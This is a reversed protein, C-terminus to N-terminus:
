RCKITPATDLKTPEKAGYIKRQGRETREFGESTGWAIEDFNSRWVKDNKYRPTDGKGAAHGPFLDRGSRRQGTNPKFSM